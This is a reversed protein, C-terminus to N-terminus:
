RYIEIIKIMTNQKCPIIEDGDRAVKSLQKDCKKYKHLYKISMKKYVKSNVNYYNTHMNTCVNSSRM